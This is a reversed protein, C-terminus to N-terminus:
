SPRNKQENEESKFAGISLLALGVVLMVSPILVNESDMGAVGLMMMTFGSGGLFKDM